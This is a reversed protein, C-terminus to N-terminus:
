RIFQPLLAPLLLLIFVLMRIGQVFWLGPLGLWWMLKSFLRLLLAFVQGVSFDPHLSLAVSSKTNTRPRGALDEASTYTLADVAM